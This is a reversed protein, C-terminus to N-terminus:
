TWWLALACVALSALFLIHARAIFWEAILSMWGAEVPDTFAFWHDPSSDTAVVSFWGDPCRLTRNVWRDRVPAALSIDITTGNSERLALSLGAAGLDGAMQLKLHSAVRCRVPQSEFAGQEGSGDDTYSGRFPRLGSRPTNPAVGEIAFANAPTVPQLRLAPRIVPPLIDRVHGHRLWANVLMAPNNFPVQFPHPKATLVEANDTEMFVRINQVYAEMWARRTFAGVTLSEFTLRALGLLSLILWCGVFTRAARRKRSPGADQGTFVVLCVVANVVFGLSLLDMYRPAPPQGGVGRAYALAAAQLLTWIGLVYLLVHGEPLGQRRRATSVLLGTLPLWMFVSMFPVDSWPWALSGAFSVIFAGVTGARYVAHHALPPSALAAGAIVLVAALGIELAIIRRDRLGTAARVLPAAALALATLPGGAASFLACFACVWGLFWRGSGPPDTTFWLAMLSFLVFFYMASQFGALTNEWAFPLAFALACIGAVLEIRRRGVASWLMLALLAATTAHLGANFVQQVQPDWLGNAVLLLLASLRSFFIRHENHLAAMQTWALCREHFPIYLASAEGSWQDEYPVPAPYYHILLLKGAITGLFLAALWMSATRGRRMPWVSLLCVTLFSAVGAGALTLSLPTVSSLFNLSAASELCSVTFLLSPDAGSTVILLGEEGRSMSGIDQAPLLSSPNLSTLPREDADLVGISRILVTDSRDVPDFRLGRLPTSPLVFRLTHLDDRQPQLQIRSSSEESFGTGTDWYLQATAGTGSVRQEIQLIRQRPADGPDVLRALFAALVLLTV